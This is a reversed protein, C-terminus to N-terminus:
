KKKKKKKAPRTMGYTMHKELFFCKQPAEHWLDYKKGIKKTAPRAMGYTM